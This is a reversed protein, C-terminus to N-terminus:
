VSALNEELNFRPHTYSDKCRSNFHLKQSGMAESCMFSCDSLCCQSCMLIQDTSGCRFTTWSSQWWKRCLQFHLHRELRCVTCLEMAPFIHSIHWVSPVSSTSRIQNPLCDDSWPSLLLLLQTAFVLSVRYKTSNGKYTRYKYECITNKSCNVGLKYWKRNLKM